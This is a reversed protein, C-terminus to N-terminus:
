NKWSRHSWLIFIFCSPRNSSIIGARARRLASAVASIANEQGVVRKHMEEELNRLKIAEDQRIEGVNVGIKESLLEDILDEDIVKFNNQEARIVAEELLRNGKDPMVREFDFENGFEVIRKVASVQITLNHKKELQKVEDLLIQLTVEKSPENLNIPTFLAALTKIPKVYKYYDSLTTTTITKINYRTIMNMVLNIIEMRGETRISLIQSFDEFAIILSKSEVVEELIQQLIQKFHDISGAKAFVKNLDVVVLRSDRLEKPVDEIIMRTALYELFHTKGVGPEGIIIAAASSEQELTQLLTNIENERGISISFGRDIIRATLNYGFEDLMPTARSTYARNIPGKPKLKSLRKWKKQYNLNKQENKLWLIFGKIDLETIEFERLVEKWYKEILTALLIKEDIYDSEIFNAKDLLDRFFEAAMVEFSTTKTKFHELLANKLSKLDLGLRSELLKKEKSVSVMYDSLAVLFFDKHKAYVEDLIQLVEVSFANELEYVKQANNKIKKRLDSLDELHLSSDFVKKDRKLYLGYIILFISINSIILGPETPNWLEKFSFRSNYILWFYPIVLLIIGLIFLLSGLRKDFYDRNKREGRFKFLDELNLIIKTNNSTTIELMENM